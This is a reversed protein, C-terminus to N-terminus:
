PARLLRIRAPLSPLGRDLDPREYVGVDLRCGPEELLSVLTMARRLREQSGDLRGGLLDGSRPLRFARAAGDGGRVALDDCVQEAGQALVLPPGPVDPDVEGAVRRPFWLEHPVKVAESRPPPDVLPGLEV